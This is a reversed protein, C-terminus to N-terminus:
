PKTTPEPAGRISMLYDVIQPVQQDAIPAGFTTRMKQVENIWTQRPFLPQNIIYRTSHCFTCVTSVTDLGIKPGPPLETQITPLVISHAGNDAPPAPAPEGSSVGLGLSAVTLLSAAFPLKMM